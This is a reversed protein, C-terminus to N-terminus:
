MRKLLVYNYVKKSAAAVPFTRMEIFIRRFIM